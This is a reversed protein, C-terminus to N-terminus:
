TLQQIELACAFVAVVKLECIVNIFIPINAWNKKLFVPLGNVNCLCLLTCFIGYFGEVNLRGNEELFYNISLRMYVKPFLVRADAERTAWGTFFRDAISSVPNERFFSITVWELTRAQSIGHVSSGPPSCDTPDCFTPCLKAVLGGDSVLVCRCM